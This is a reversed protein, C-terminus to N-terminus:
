CAKNLTKAIWSRIVKSYTGPKTIETMDVYDGLIGDLEMAAEEVINDGINFRSELGVSGSVSSPAQKNKLWTKRLDCNKVNSTVHCANDEKENYYRCKENKCKM